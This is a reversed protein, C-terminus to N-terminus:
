RPCARVKGRALPPVPIQSCGAGTPIAAGRWSSGVRRLVVTAGTPSVSQVIVSPPAPGPTLPNSTPPPVSGGGSGPLAAIAVAAAIAGLLAIAILVHVARVRVHRRPVSEVTIALVSPRDAPSDWGGPVGRQAM